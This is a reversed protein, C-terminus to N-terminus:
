RIQRTQQQELESEQSIREQLLSRKDKQYKLQDRVTEFAEKSLFREPETMLAAYRKYKAEADVIKFDLDLLQDKLLLKSQTLSIKSNRLQNLNELLRNEADILERQANTNALEVIVDGKKVTDGPQARVKAVIGGEQLDVYFTNLPQVSGNISAYEQFEARRVQAISLRSSDVSLRSKGLGGFSLAMVTTMSLALAVLAAIKRAPWKQKEISRDM